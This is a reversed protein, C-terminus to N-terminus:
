ATRVLKFGDGYTMVEGVELRRIDEITGLDFVEAAINECIIDVIDAQHGNVTFQRDRVEWPIM